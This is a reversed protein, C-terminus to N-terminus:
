RHRHQHRDGPSGGCRLHRQPEASSSWVPPMRVSTPRRGSTAIAADAFMTLGDKTSVSTSSAMPSLSTTCISNPLATSGAPISGLLQARHARVDPNGTPLRMALCPKMTAPSPRITRSSGPAKLFISPPSVSNRILGETTFSVAGTADDVEFGTNISARLGTNLDLRMDRAWCCWM